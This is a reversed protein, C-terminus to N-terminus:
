ADKIEVEEVRLMEAIAELFDPAMELSMGGGLKMPFELEDEEEGQVEILIYPRLGLLPQTLTFNGM